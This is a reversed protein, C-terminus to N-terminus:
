YNNDIKMLDGKVLSNVNITFTISIVDLSCMEISETM